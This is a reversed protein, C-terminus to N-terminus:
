GLNYFDGHIIKLNLDRNLIAEELTKFTKSYVIKKNKKIRVRYTNFKTKEINKYRTSLNSKPTIRNMNNQSQTALRLNEINNNSKDNDIHDIQINDPIEGNYMQHILIHFGVKKVKGNKCLGINYYGASNLAPKMYRKYYHSYVQNTNFDFSYLGEYNPIPKLNM